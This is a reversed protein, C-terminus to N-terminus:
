QGSKKGLLEEAERRLLQFDLRLQWPLPEQLEAGAALKEQGNKEIWGVAEQLLQQARAARDLRHYAMALFLKRWHVGIGPKARISAELRGVAAELDGKRYLTDGLLGVLDANHPDRALRKEAIQVPRALDAVADPALKCIAIVWFDPDNAQGFRE